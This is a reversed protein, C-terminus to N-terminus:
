TMTNAHAAKKMAKNAVRAAAAAIQNMDVANAATPRGAFNMTYSNTQSSSNNAVTSTTTKASVAGMASPSPLSPGGKAITPSAAAVSPTLAPDVSGTGGSSGAEGASGASGSSGGSNQVASAANSLATSFDGLSTIVTRIATNADSVAAATDSHAATSETVATTHDKTAETDKSKAAADEPKAHQKEFSDDNARDAWWQNHKNMAEQLSMLPSGAVYIDSDKRHSSSRAATASADDTDANIGQSSRTGASTKNSYIKKENTKEEDTHKRLARNYRNDELQRQIAMQRMAQTEMEASGKALELKKKYEEEIYTLKMEHIQREQEALAATVNEGRQARYELDSLEDEKLQLEMSKTEAVMQKELEHIEKKLKLEQNTLSKIEQQVQARASESEMIDKNARLAQKLLQVTERVAELEQLPGKNDIMRTQAKEQLTTFAKNGRNDIAAQRAKQQDKLLEQYSDRVEKNGKMLQANAEGWDKLKAIVVDYARVVDAPDALVSGALKDASELLPKMAANLSVLARSGEISHLRNAIEVEEKSLHQAAELKQQLAEKEGPLWGGKHNTLTDTLYNASAQRFRKYLELKTEYYQQEAALDDDRGAQRRAFEKDVAEADAELRKRRQADLKANLEKYLAEQESISSIIKYEEGGQQGKGILDAMREMRAAGSKLERDNLHTMNRATDYLGALSKRCREAAEYLLNADNAQEAFKAFATDAMAQKQATQVRKSYEDFKKLVAELEDVHLTRKMSELQNQKDRKEAELQIIGANQDQKNIDLGIFPVFHPSAGNKAVTLKKDIENLENNLESVQSKAKEAQERIKDLTLGKSSFSDQLQALPLDTRTLIDRVDMAQSTTDSTSYKVKEQTTKMIAERLDDWAHRHEVLQKSGEAIAAQAQKEDAIMKEIWTNAIEYVALGATIGLGLQGAIALGSEAKRFALLKTRASTLSLGLKDMSVKFAAASAAATVLGGALAATAAAVGGVVAVLPAAAGLASVLGAAQESLVKVYPAFEDGIAAKTNTIEDELNSIAGQVTAAQREIGGAFETNVLEVLATKLKGINEATDVAIGGQANMVAGFKTLKQTNVGFVDRLSQLGESSGSLARGMATAAQTIDGGMASALNAVVPLLERSKQGYVELQVAAAVVGKVDFPTSAALTKAYNFTDAATRSDHQITILKARLQEFEGSAAICEKGLSILQDSMSVLASGGEKLTDLENKLDTFSVAADKANKTLDDVQEAPKSVDANSVDKVASGLDKANKGAEAAAQGVRDVQGAAKSADAGGVSDVAEGLEKVDEGAKEAAEGINGVQEATESVDAKGVDEISGSMEEVQDGAKEASEGLKEVQEATKSVDADGVAEVAEGLEKVEEGAEEAADGTQKAQEAAPASSTSGATGGLESISKKAADIESTDVKFKVKVEVDEAM